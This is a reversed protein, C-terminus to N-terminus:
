NQAGTSVMVARLCENPGDLRIAQTFRICCQIAFQRAPM